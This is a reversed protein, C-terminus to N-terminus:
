LQFLSSVHGSDINLWDAFLDFSFPAAEDLYLVPDWYDINYAPAADNSVSPTGHSSPLRSQLRSRLIPQGTSPKLTKFEKEALNSYMSYCWSAASWYKRLAGVAKLGMHFTKKAQDHRPTGESNNIIEETLALFAHFM